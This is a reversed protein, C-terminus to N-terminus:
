SGPKMHRVPSGAGQIYLSCGGDRGEQRFEVVSNEGVVIRLYECGLGDQGVRADTVPLGILQELTKSWAPM